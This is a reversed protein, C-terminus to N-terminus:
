SRIFRGGNGWTWTGGSAGIQFNMKAIGLDVASGYAVSPDLTAIADGSDKDWAFVVPQGNMASPAKAAAAVGAKFWEPADQRDQASLASTLEEYSKSTRHEAQRQCLMAFDQNGYGVQDAPYGITVVLYLSQSPTIRCHREAAQRDWSGSVWGTGLGYLTAALVMREGYFGAKELSEQDDKPGVLALYNAANALHGSANDAAFADPKGLVLQMDLGSLTNLANLTSGLQRALDPDIPKPDYERTTIRVNVADILQTHETM